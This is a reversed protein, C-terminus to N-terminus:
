SQRPYGHLHDWEPLDDPGHTSGTLKLAEPDRLMERLAPAEQELMFPRLMVREGILTPEASFDAPQEFV